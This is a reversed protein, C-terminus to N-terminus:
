KSIRSSATARWQRPSIGFWRKFSRSFVSLDAYGLMEAIDTLRFQPERLYNIAISQRVQEQLERFCTGEEGLKRQLSRESLGLIAAVTAATGRGSTLLSSLVARVQGKYDDVRNASLLSRMESSIASLSGEVPWDLVESPFTLGNRGQGFALPARFYKQYASIDEPSPIDLYVLRPAWARGCLTRIIQCQLAVAHHWFQPSNVVPAYRSELTFFAMGQESKLGVQLSQVSYHVYREFVELAGRLDASGVAMGGIAGFIALSQRQSLELMLTQRGCLAAAEELIACHKELPIFHIPNKIETEDLNVRELVRAFSYGLTALYDPLGMLLGARCLPTAM